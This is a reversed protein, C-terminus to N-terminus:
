AHRSRFTVVAGCVTACYHINYHARFSNVIDILKTLIINIVKTPKLPYSVQLLAGVIIPTTLAMVPKNAPLQPAMM